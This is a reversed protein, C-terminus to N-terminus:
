TLNPVIALFGPLQLTQGLSTTITCMVTYMVGLVGGTIKQTAIAGSISAVGSIMSSPSPDVGSYVVSTVVATLITEGVALNSTFDFAFSETEGLRKAPLIVRNM